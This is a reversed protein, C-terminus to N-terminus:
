LARLLARTAQEIDPSRMLAEGVLVADVGGDRLAVLQEPTRFGSEAVTIVGDPVGPL